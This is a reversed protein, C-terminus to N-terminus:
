LGRIIGSLELPGWLTVPSGLLCWLVGSFELPSLLVWSSGLIVEPSELPGMIIESSGWLVGSSGLLVKPSKLPGLLVWSLWLPDLPAGSSVQPNWLIRSSGLSM